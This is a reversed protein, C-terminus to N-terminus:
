LIILKGFLDVSNVTLIKAWVTKGPIVLSNETEDQLDYSIVISGDVEPAQFWSRGIAFAEDSKEDKIIEEILVRVVKGIYKKLNQSMIQLQIENLREVRKTIKRNGVQNKMSFAPTEEERSYAFCGAWDSRIEFLFNETNKANEDTEGPFGCLFTTRICSDQYQTKLCEERITKVLSVYNQFSGHRNMARIIKDDGSQFPIDFYPLIRADNQIVPLIDQPFNDPHIYLLRIWFDGKLKSIESLLVSLPSKETYNQWKISGSEARCIRFNGFNGFEETEDTSLGYCALDQGVLNFEFIGKCLLDKIEQLIEKIPRSRLRGRILPIACFSCLNDCGETIKIYCTGPLSLFHKRDTCCVGIQEPQLVPVLNKNCINKTKILKNKDAFIIKVLENIKSINGNGFIGDVETLNESFYLSYRQALCGALIIKADPYSSRAAFVSDLSTKKASEIFGCSNIIILCAQKPDDTVDWGDSALYSIILEGDVQNKACGHQDLFFLKKKTM